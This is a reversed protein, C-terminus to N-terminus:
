DQLGLLYALEARKRRRYGLVLAVFVVSLLAIFAIFGAGIGARHYIWSLCFAMECFYLTTGFISAALAARCRRISLDIFATTTMASPSWLGRRSVLAFIWAAAIFTWTGLVLVLMDLRPSRIALVAVGGGIVVTVLVESLLMVRMFSSYREVRRGLDSPVGAAAQWERRWSELETDM